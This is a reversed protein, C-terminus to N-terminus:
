ATQKENITNEIEAVIEDDTSNETITEIKKKSDMFRIIYYGILIVGGYLFLTGTQMLMNAVDTSYNNLYGAAWGILFGAIVFIMGLKMVANKNNLIKKIREIELKAKEKYAKTDMTNVEM